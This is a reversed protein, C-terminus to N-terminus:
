LHFCDALPLTDNSEDVPGGFKGCADVGETEQKRLDVEESNAVYGHRTPCQEM